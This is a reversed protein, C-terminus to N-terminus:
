GGFVLAKAPKTQLPDSDPASDHMETFSKSVPRFATNKFHNNLVGSITDPEATLLFVFYNLSLRPLM